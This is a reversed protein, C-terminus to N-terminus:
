RPPRRQGKMEVRDAQSSGIPEKGEVNPGVQDIAQRLARNFLCDTPIEVVHRIEIAEDAADARPSVDVDPDQDGRHSEAICVIAEDEDAPPASEAGSGMKNARQLDATAPIPSGPRTHRSRAPIM